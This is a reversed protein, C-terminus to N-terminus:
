QPLFQRMVLRVHRIVPRTECSDLAAAPVSFRLYDFWTAPNEVFRIHLTLGLSVFL